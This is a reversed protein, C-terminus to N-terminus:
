VIATDTIYMTKHIHKPVECNSHRQQFVHDSQSIVAQQGTQFFPPLPPLDDRDSTSEEFSQLLSITIETIVLLLVNGNLSQNHCEYM